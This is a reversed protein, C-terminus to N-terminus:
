KKDFKLAFSDNQPFTPLTVTVRGKKVTTKLVRGNSILTVKGKPINGVWSITEPVTEGEPLAYIAYMTKGDKSQTFWVNGDNYNPTPRTSYIAEGNDMLWDGIDTMIAETTKDIIGQATPGIGLLLSGGKATAEILTNIITRPSKNRPKPTWGWDDSLPICSEWPHDIQKEPIMREPTEYNENPGGIMRDVCILGPNNARAYQIVKDIGIRDGSLWGGDLWLIDLPAFNSTIEGLQNQTYTVFNNWWDPHKEVNYNQNRDPTAYYPNWFWQCHWDPKSYYAGVMFNQKRYAEFVYRAADKRPNDAFPGKAISFDTYKSDYLCFGDHHKTTFIVYKMGARRSVEAWQEPNFDTPNFDKALGWYWQKYGEYTSGEPRVVWDENCLNWSEVIGPVSYLGWHIIIGFKLDQWEELKQKVQPDTPFQYNKSEQAVEQAQAAVALMAAAMAMTITKLTM